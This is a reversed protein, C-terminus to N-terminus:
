ALRHFERGTIFDSIKYAGRDRTRRYYDVLPHEHLHRAFVKYAARAAVESLPPDDVEVTTRRRLDFESYSSFDAPIMRRLSPGVHATFSKLDRLAYLDRILELLALLDRSRLREM